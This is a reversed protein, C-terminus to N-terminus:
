RKQEGMEKKRSELIDVKVTMTKEGFLVFKLWRHGFKLLEVDDSFIADRIKQDVDFKKFFTSEFLFTRFKDLHYSAMFFMETKQPTLNHGESFYSHTTIDKYYEGMLNYEEIGQDKIWRDVTWRCDEAFGKCVDEHLLFFFDKDITKNNEGPSALGLPYMRCAWPRDNYVRCGEPGVFPCTKREDDKMRLLVVPFKLNEDFPSLTYNELFDGSTIGLNRKLRLIDYPTLFINVDQCCNNFCSVKPHCKFTFASQRDLRPYDNLITNKLNEIEKM